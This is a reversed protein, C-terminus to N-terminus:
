RRDDALGWGAPVSHVTPLAPSQPEPSSFAAAASSMVGGVMVLLWDGVVLALPQFLLLTVTVKVAVSATEVGVQVTVETVSVASVAPCITLVVQVSAAPLLAVALRVTLISLVAGISFM